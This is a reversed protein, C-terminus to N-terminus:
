AEGRLELLDPDVSWCPDAEFPTVSPVPDPKPRADLAADALDAFWRLVDGCANGTLTDLAAAARRMYDPTPWHREFRMAEYDISEAPEPFKSILWACERDIAEPYGPDGDAPFGDLVVRDILAAVPGRLGGENVLKM